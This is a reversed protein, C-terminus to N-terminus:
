VASNQPALYDIKESQEAWRAFEDRSLGDKRKMLSILKVM